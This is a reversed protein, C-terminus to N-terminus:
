GFLDVVVRADSYAALRSERGNSEKLPSRKEEYDAMRSMRGNSPKLPSTPMDKILDRGEVIRISVPSEVLIYHKNPSLPLTMTDPTIVEYLDGYKHLLKKYYDM